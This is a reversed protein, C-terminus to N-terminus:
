SPPTPQFKSCPAAWASKKRSMTACRRDQVHCSGKVHLPPYAFWPTATLCWKICWLLFTQRARRVQAHHLCQVFAHVLHAYSSHQRHALEAYRLWCRSARQRLNAFRYCCPVCDSHVCLQEKEDQQTPNFATRNWHAQPQDAQSYEAALKLPRFCLRAPSPRHWPLEVSDLHHCLQAKSGLHREHCAARAIRTSAGKKSLVGVTFRPSHLM